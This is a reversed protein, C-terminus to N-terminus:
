KKAYEDVRKFRIVIFRMTFVADGYKDFLWDLLEDHCCFGDRIALEDDEEITLMRWDDSNPDSAVFTDPFLDMVFLDMIEADFLKECEKTRQKWYIQLRLKGEKAKLLQKWRYESFPRITQDKEGSLLKDKFISLSIAVM